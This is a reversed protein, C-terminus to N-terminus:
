LAGVYEGGNPSIAQGTIFAAADSCLFAVLAAVDEPTGLRQAPVQAARHRLEAASLASRAMPTDTLAPLVTNATIGFPALELAWARMFGLMAAKAGAYHPNGAAGRAAILSSVNVIRGQGLAKMDPVLAQTLFFSGRVSVAFVQDFREASVAEFAEGGGIAANNILISARGDRDRIDAALRRCADLDAVDLRASRASGGGSVIAAAAQEAAEANLDAVVVHVDDAALAAAIARGIGQGGGTVIAVRPASATM